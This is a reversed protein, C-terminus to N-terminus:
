EPLGALRLADLYRKVDEERRQAPFLAQRANSLRLAPFIQLIREIAKRAEGERGALAHIGASIAISPLYDPSDALARAAWVNAEELRGLHFLACADLCEYKFMQSDLPSLRMAKGAQEIAREHEGLSLSIWARMGWGESYNVNLALGRDVLETGKDLDGALALVYGCTCLVLADDRGLELARRTFAMVEAGEAVPDKVWGHLRRRTHCLAAKAYPMAFGPDLEIAKRFFGLAEDSAAASMEDIRAMGRLYYDYAHMNGTPKALARRLEAQELKPIIANVVASAVQDQLAFVDELPGEVRDAWLHAGTVADVLQGTIRVTSGAKRVSGQLVYRVGLERAVQKVDHLRGRYGFSSNRAIVFLWQFRSLATIIEEVAGDAFYDQTADGSLNDFPLVAISPKDPLAPAEQVAASPAKQTPRELLALSNGLAQALRAVMSVEDEALSEHHVRRGGALLGVVDGRVVLPWAMPFALASGSIKRAEVPARRLKLQIIAPDDSRVLAADGANGGGALTFSDDQQLYIASERKHLLEDMRHLARERLRQPDRILALEQILEEIGARRRRGERDLWRAAAHEVRHHFLQFTVGLALAIGLAIPLSWQRGQALSHELLWEAAKFILFLLLTVGTYLVSRLVRRDIRPLLRSPKRAQEKSQPEEDSGNVPPM